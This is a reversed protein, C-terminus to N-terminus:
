CPKKRRLRRAPPSGPSFLLENLYAGYFLISLCAYLWLMTLAIVALGGYLESFRSFHNVYFSFAYSFAIWAAAAAAAGPLVHSLKARRNPLALFLASFLATLFALTYLHLHQLLASLLLAPHAEHSLLLALLQRGWVHLTLTLVLSLLFLLTYATCLLRVRLYGRSEPAGCVANLARLIGLLGKSASWLTVLASVSVVAPRSTGYLADTLYSFLPLLTQPVVGSVLALLDNKTGVTYPLLALLLSTLPLCSLLLFFSANAAFVPIQLRGIERLLARLRPFFRM